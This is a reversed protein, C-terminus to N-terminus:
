FDRAFGASWGSDVALVHGTTYSNDPDVLFLVANAIDRATPAHGLPVHSRIVGAFPDGALPAAAVANVAVGQGALRMALVRTAQAVGAAAVSGAADSRTAVLGQIGLILVIRGGDQMSGAAAEAQLM